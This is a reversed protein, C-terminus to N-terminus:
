SVEELPPKKIARKIYLDFCLTAIFGVAAFGLMTMKLLYSTIQKDFFFITLLLIACVITVLKSLRRNQQYISYSYWTKFTENKGDYQILRKFIPSSVKFAGLRYASMGKFLLIGDYWNNEASSCGLRKIEDDIIKLYTTSTAFTEAYRNKVYLMHLHQWTLEMYLNLDASDKLTNVTKFYDAYKEFFVSAYQLTYETASKFDAYLYETTLKNM